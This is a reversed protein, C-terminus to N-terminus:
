EALEELKAKAMEVMLQARRLQLQPVTHPTRKEAEVLNQLDAEALEVQARHFRLAREAQKLREVSIEYDSKARALEASSVVNQGHLDKLRNFEQQSREVIKKLVGISEGTAPTANSQALSRLAASLERSANNENGAASQQRRAEILRQKSVALNRAAQLVVDYGVMNAQYAANVAMLARDAWERAEEFRAVAEDRRGEALALEGQAVALEYAALALADASGGRLGNQNLADTKKFHNELFNVHERLAALEDANRPRFSEARPDPTLPEITASAAPSDMRDRRPLTVQVKPNRLTESLREMIANEATELSMDRVRVRGYLPGLAISGGPEVVYNGNIPADDPTGHVWVHVTDGPQIRYPDRPVEAPVSQVPQISPLDAPAVNSARQEAPQESTSEDEAPTANEAAPKSPQNEQGGVAEVSLPLTTLAAAVVFLRASLSVRYNWKTNMINEIREALNGNTGLASAVAPATSRSESAFQVAKFLASAYQQTIGPLESVVWADCAEEEAHQIKVRAWWVVPHWWYLATVVLEFCRVWHDRRRLHALEHALLAQLEEHPLDALLKHPMLITPRGIPWVLPSLRGGTIRLRFRSSIGFKAALEFALQQVGAPAPETDVLARHFRALRVASVVLFVATGALWVSAVVMPWAVRHTSRDTVAPETVMVINPREIDLAATDDAVTTDVSPEAQAVPVNAALKTPRSLLQEGGAFRWPVTVLPPTILKVLVLIWLMHVLMPHRWIRTVLWVAIALVAALAANMLAIELMAAM